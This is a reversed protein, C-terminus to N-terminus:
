FLNSLWRAIGAGVKVAGFKVSNLVGVGSVDIEGSDYADAFAGAPDPSGAIGCITSQSTEVRLTPDSATSEEFAIIRGDDATTVAFRREGAPADIRVDITQGSLQGRVVGPVRDVNANYTDILPALEAADLSCAQASAPSAPFALLSLVLLSAVLVPRGAKM